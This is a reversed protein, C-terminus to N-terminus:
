EGDHITDVGPADDGVIDLTVPDLKRLVGDQVVVLHTGTNRAIDRAREAARLLARAVAQMDRDPLSSTKSKMM